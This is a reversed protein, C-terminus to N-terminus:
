QVHSQSITKYMKEYKMELLDIMKLDDYEQLDNLIQRADGLSNLLKMIKFHKM